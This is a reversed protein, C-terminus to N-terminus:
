THTHLCSHCVIALHMKCVFNHCKICQSRVRKSTGCLACGKRKKSPGPQPEAEEEEEKEEQEGEKAKDRAQLVLSAAFPERPLRSRTVMAPTILAKGLDQLFLRRKYTKRSNWSPDIATFLLFANYCTVDIIHYFLCMPWRRTQRRCLYTGCAQSFLFLHDSSM